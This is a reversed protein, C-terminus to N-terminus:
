MKEIYRGEILVNHTLRKNRAEVSLPEQVVRTKDINLM